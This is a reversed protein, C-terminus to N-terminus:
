KNSTDNFWKFCNCIKTRSFQTELLIFQCNLLYLKCQFNFIKKRNRYHLLALGTLISELHLRLEQSIDYNYCPNKCMYDVYMMRTCVKEFCQSVPSLSLTLSFQFSYKNLWYIVTEDRTWFVKLEQIGFRRTSVIQPDVARIHKVFIPFWQKCLFFSCFRQFSSPNFSQERQANSVFAKQIM